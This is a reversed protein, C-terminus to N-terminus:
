SIWRHKRVEQVSLRESPVWLLMGDLLDRMALAEDAPVQTWTPELMEIAPGSSVAKDDDESGIDAIMEELPYQVALVKGGPWDKLPKGDDDFCLKRKEWRHWWPEPLKGIMQVMQQIVEDAGGMISTFLPNGARIEFLLCALAWIESHQNYQATFITEPARYMFPLGVNEIRPPEEFRFSEGFDILYIDSALHDTHPMNAAEVVYRPASQGPEAKSTTRIEEKVPDGLRRYVEEEAWHDM